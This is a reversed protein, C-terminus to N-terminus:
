IVKRVNMCHDIINLLYINQINDKLNNGIIDKNLVTTDM